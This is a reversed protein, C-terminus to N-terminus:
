FLKPNQDNPILIQKSNRYAFKPNVTGKEPLRLITYIVRTIAPVSFQYWRGEERVAREAQVSPLKGGEFILLVVCLCTQAFGIRTDKTHAMDPRFATKNVWLCLLCVMTFSFFSFRSSRSSCITTSSAPMSTSLMASGLPIQQRAAKMAKLHYALFFFPLCM